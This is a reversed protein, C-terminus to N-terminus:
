VCRSHCEKVQSFICVFSLLCLSFFYNARFKILANSQVYVITCFNHLAISLSMGTYIIYMYIYINICISFCFQLYHVCWPDSTIHTWRAQRKEANMYIYSIYKQFLLTESLPHIYIYICIYIYIYIYLYLYISLYIKDSYLVYFFHAKNNKAM